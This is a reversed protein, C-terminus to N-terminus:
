CRSAPPSRRRARGLTNLERRVLAKTLGIRIEGFPTDGLSM